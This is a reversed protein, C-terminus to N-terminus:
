INALEHTNGPSLQPMTLISGNWENLRQGVLLMTSHMDRDDCSVHRPKQVSKAYLLLSPGGFVVVM